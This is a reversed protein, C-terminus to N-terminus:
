RSRNPRDPLAIQQGTQDHIQDKQLQLLQLVKLRTRCGDSRRQKLTRKTKLCRRAPNSHIEIRILQDNKIASTTLDVV